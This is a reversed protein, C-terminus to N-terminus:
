KSLRNLTENLSRAVDAFIQRLGQNWARMLDSSDKQRILVKTSFVRDLLIKMEDGSSDSLNVELKIVAVPKGTQRYDAYLELIKAHLTYYSQDYLEDTTVYKFLHTQRFFDSLLQTFQGAPPSFFVHYPDSQYNIDSLRYVFNINSFAPVVETNDIVLGRNFAVKRLRSTSVRNLLYESHQPYSRNLCGSLLVMLLGMLLLHTWVMSKVPYM